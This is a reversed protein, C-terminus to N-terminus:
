ISSFSRVSEISNKFIEYTQKGLLFKQQKGNKDYILTLPVAGSWDKNILNIIDESNKEDAIYVPFDANQKKLFPIVLSDVDSELDVSLSLFQVNEDKYNNYIKVIDPFEEVCPICWTAWVNIFLIKNNRNNIIEKLSNADLVKINKEANLISNNNKNCGFFFLILLLLYFIKGHMMNFEKLLADSLKQAHIQFKRAM